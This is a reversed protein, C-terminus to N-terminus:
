IVLPVFPMAIFNYAEKNKQQVKTTSEQTDNKNEMEELKQRDRENQKEREEIKQKLSDTSSKLERVGKKDLVVDEPKKLKGDSTM